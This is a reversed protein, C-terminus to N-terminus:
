LGISLLVSRRCPIRASSGLSTYLTVEASGVGGGAGVINPMDLSIGQATILGEVEGSDELLVLRVHALLRTDRLDLFTFNSTNVVM